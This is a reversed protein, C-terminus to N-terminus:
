KASALPCTRLGLLTYVPCWRVFATALPVLGILGLWKRDGEVLVLMSLLVLGFVIRLTRDLNGVNPTM